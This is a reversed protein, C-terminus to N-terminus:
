ETKRRYCGVYGNAFFGPLRNEIRRNVQYAFGPFIRTLPYFVVKFDYFARGEREFGADMMLRDMEGPSLEHHVVGEPEAESTSRTGGKILRNLYTM